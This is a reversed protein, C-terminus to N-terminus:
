EVPVLGVVNFNQFTQPIGDSPFPWFQPPTTVPKEMMVVSWGESSSLKQGFMGDSNKRVGRVLRVKRWTIEKQEGHEFSRQFSSSKLGNWLNLCIRCLLEHAIFFFRVLLVAEALEFVAPILTLTPFFLVKFSVWVQLQQLFYM